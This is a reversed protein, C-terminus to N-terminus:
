GYRSTQTPPSALLEYSDGDTEILRVAGQSAHVTIATEDDCRYVMQRPQGQAIDQRSQSNGQQADAVCGLLAISLSALVASRTAGKLCRMRTVITMDSLTSGFSSPLGTQLRQWRNTSSEVTKLNARRM